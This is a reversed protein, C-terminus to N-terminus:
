NATRAIRQECSTSSARFNQPQGSSLGQRNIFRLVMQLVQQCRNWAALDDRFRRLWSLKEHM